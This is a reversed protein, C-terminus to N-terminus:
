ELRAVKLVGKIRAVRHILMDLHKVNSILVKLHVELLGHHTDFSASRVNIKLEKSIVDTIKNFLGIDEEAMVKIDCQFNTSETTNRWRAPVVRYEYMNHIQQANPCSNRHIKIGEGLKVFGFIDDGFIPNCCKALVYQINALREDIVMFDGGEIPKPSANNDIHHHEIPKQTIGEEIFEKILAFEIKDQALMAYMETTSHLKHKKLFQHTLEHNFDLKWNKLRRDLQEKGLAAIKMEEEKLCQRIRNKAKSTIVFHLWDITAKQNKSTVIEVLDGNKLIEKIPVLRKNIRAGTCHVGVETHIDFAFDLVSAGLPLKRLDGTPTFVFIEKQYLELRLNEALDGNNESSDLLNRLDNLWDDIGKQEQIGKYRWHAAVGNEAIEDMRKTRIQVEVWKGEPGIVTAHLSEYGNSKPVSIWDKLREPNSLYKESVISFVKWCDAKEMQIPSDLIIRIAFIDYIDELKFGNKRLKKWLSYVSKTRSKIDFQLGTGELSKRLPAVFAKIYSERQQESEALQKVIQNFVEPQTYQLALDELESKIRYLGLKHALPAYLGFTEEAKKIQKDAPFLHLNRMVDLRDALKILIVRPDEAYSVVLQRFNEAQQQNTKPDLASIKNLGKVIIAVEEGYTPAITNEIFTGVRVAEHLLIAMVATANLHIETIAIEAVSLAHYLFPDGNERKIGELATAATRLVHKLKALEETTNHPKSLRYITLLKGFLEKKGM